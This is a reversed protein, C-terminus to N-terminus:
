QEIVNIGASEEVEDSFDEMMERHKKMRNEERQELTSLIENADNITGENKRKTIPEIMQLLNKITNFIFPETVNDQNNDAM